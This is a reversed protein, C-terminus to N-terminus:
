SKPMSLMGLTMEFHQPDERYLEMMESTSSFRETGLSLVETSDHEYVKGVYPHVFDDEFAIEDDRYNPDELIESLKKPEAKKQGSHKAARDAIWQRNAELITDDGFEHFHALEHFLIKRMGDPFLSSGTNLAKYGKHAFARPRVSAIADLNELRVGTMKIYDGMVGDFDPVAQRASEEIDIRNLIGKVEADTMGHRDRLGQQVDEMSKEIREQYISIEKSIKALKEKEKEIKDSDSTIEDWEAEAKRYKSIDDLLDPAVKKVFDRGREAFGNYDNTYKKDANSGVKTPHPKTTISEVQKVKGEEAKKAKTWNALYNIM